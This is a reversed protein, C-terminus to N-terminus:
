NPAVRVCNKGTNKGEYLMSDARKICDYIGLNHDPGFDAVGFTLTISFMLDNYKYGHNAIADRIKEALIRGGEANTEPLLLLFEEGGWRSAIDQKRLLSRMIEATEILIFDGCGHGYKDNVGKFDDIDGMVLAFTKGSREFRIRESEIKELMDRRNSLQTLPDTRAALELKEQIELLEKNKKVLEERMRKLELHTKVRALLEMGNFPKTVYDVAGCEFGKVIDDVSTRATLFIVPTDCTEPTNKLQACIEYGDIEPMMVDLLILDPIIKHTNVLELVQTGKEAVAIRYHRKRLMNGLLQLNQPVDDVILIMQQKQENLVSDKM